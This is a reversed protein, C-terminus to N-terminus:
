QGGDRNDTLAYWYSITHEAVFNKGTEDLLAAFPVEFLSYQPVITVLKDENHPLWHQIPKVLSKHLLKLHDNVNPYMWSNPNHKHKDHKAKEQEYNATTTLPPHQRASHEIPALSSDHMKQLLDTLLQQFTMYRLEKGKKKSFMAMSETDFHIDAIDGGLKCGLDKGISLNIRKCYLSGTDGDLVYVLFGVVDDGKPRAATIFAQLPNANSTSETLNSSDTLNSPMMLSAGLNVSSTMSSTLNATSSTLSGSVTLSRTRSKHDGFIVTYEVVTCGQTKAARKLDGMKLMPLNTGGVTNIQNKRAMVEILSQARGQDAIEFAENIKGQDILIQLRTLM